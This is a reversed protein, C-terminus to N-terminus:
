DVLKRPEALRELLHTLSDMTLSLLAGDRMLTEINKKVYEFAWVEIEDLHYYMAQLYIPLVTKTTTTTKIYTTCVSVLSSVFYKDAMVLLAISHEQLVRKPCRHTYLFEVFARVVPETFESIHIENQNAEKFSSKFMARFVPSEKALVYRHAPVVVTDPAEMQGTLHSPSTCHAPAINQNYVKIEIDGPIEADDNIYAKLAPRYYVAESDEVCGVGTDTTVIAIAIDVCITLTDNVLLHNIDNILEFYLHGVEKDEHTMLENLEDQQKGNLAYLDAKIFYAVPKKQVLELYCSVYRNTSTDGGPYLSVRWLCKGLKVTDSFVVKGNEKPLTSYHEFEFRMTGSYYEKVTSTATM